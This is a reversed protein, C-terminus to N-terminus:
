KKVTYKVGRLILSKITRHDVQRLKHTDTTLLDEVNSRGMHNETNILRGVLVRDTGDAKTFEVTFVTDGATLLAEVAQTRSVKEETDFQTNSNMTKEILGKGQVTFENKNSDRVKVSNGDKNLVEMYLTSSLIEGKKIQAFKM